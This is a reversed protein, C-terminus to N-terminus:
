ALPGPRHWRGLRKTARGMRTLDLTRPHLIPHTLQMADSQSPTEGRGADGGVTASPPPTVDTADEVRRSTTLPGEMTPLQPHTTSIARDEEGAGTTAGVVSARADEVPRGSTANAKRANRRRRQKQQRRKQRRSLIMDAKGAEESRGNTTADLSPEFEGDERLGVPRDSQQVM